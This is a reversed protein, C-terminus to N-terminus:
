SRGGKWEEIKKICDDIEKVSISGNLERTDIQTVNEEAPLENTNVEDAESLERFHDFFEDISM